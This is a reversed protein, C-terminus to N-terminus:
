CLKWFFFVPLIPGCVSTVFSDEGRPAPLDRPPAFRLAYISYPALYAPNLSSTSAFNLSFDRSGAYRDSTM